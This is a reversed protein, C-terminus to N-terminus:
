SLLTLPHKKWFIVGPHPLPETLLYSDHLGSLCNLGWFVHKFFFCFSLLFWFNYFVFCLLCWVYHCTSIFGARPLYLWTPWQPGSGPRSLLSWGLSLCQRLFYFSAGSFHDPNVEPRWLFMWECVHLCLLVCLWADVHICIFGACMHIYLFINIISALLVLLINTCMLYSRLQLLFFLPNFFLVFCFVPLYIQFFINWFLILLGSILM